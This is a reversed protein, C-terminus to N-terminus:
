PDEARFRRMLQILFVIFVTSSVAGLIVTLCAQESEEPTTEGALSLRQNLILDARDRDAKALTVVGVQADALKLSGQPGEHGSGTVTKVEEQHLVGLATAVM